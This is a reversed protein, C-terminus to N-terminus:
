KIKRRFGEGSPSPQILPSILFAKIKNEEGWGEGAPSPAVQSAAQSYLIPPSQISVTSPNSAWRYSFHRYDTYLELKIKGDQFLVSKLFM